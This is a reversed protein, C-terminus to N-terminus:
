QFQSHPFQLAFFSYPDNNFMSCQLKRLFPVDCNSVLEAVWCVPLVDFEASSPAFHIVSFTLEISKMWPENDNAVFVFQNRSLQLNLLSNLLCTYVTEFTWNRLGKLTRSIGPGVLLVPIFTEAPSCHSFQKQVIPWFWVFTRGFVFIDNLWSFGFTNWM